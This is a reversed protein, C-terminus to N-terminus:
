LKEPVPVDLIDLGNELVQVVAEILVVRSCRLEEDETNQVSVSGYFTNCLSALTELYTCVIHPMNQEAANALTWPYLSIHKALKYEIDSEYMLESVEINMARDSKELNALISYIRVATYQLYAASEGELSLMQDWDFDINKTRVHRLDHYLVAGKGVQEAIEAREDDSLDPRKGEVITSARNVAEDLVDSLGVLRGKRTSMKKGGTRMLGFGIHEVHTDAHVYEMTRALGFLQQFHLAQENGVVYLIKDPNFMEQRDRIAALDRTLYLSTGDQKQLLFSDVESLTDVVLESHEGRHAVEQEEADSIVQESQPMYYSEGVILDFVVDLRDYVEGFGQLSIDRIRKWQAILVEDQEELRKFTERAKDKLEPNEEARKTFDVYLNKLDEIPDESQELDLDSEQYAYLLSGFQTGWDGLHNDRIVTAGGCEYLRSLVEGIITSRLHGISMPKAINPASYEVFVREGEFKPHRGYHEGLMLTQQLVHQYLRSQDVYINVYGQISEASQVYRFVQAQTIHEVIADSIEHPSKRFISALPFAAIAFDAQIHQPPIELELRPLENQPIDFTESIAQYVENQLIIIPYEEWKIGLGQWEADELDHQVNTIAEETENLYDTFDAM